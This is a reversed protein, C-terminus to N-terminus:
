DTTVIAPDPIPLVTVDLNRDIEHFAVDTTIRELDFGETQVNAGIVSRVIEGDSLDMTGGAVQVGCLASDVIRFRRLEIHASLYAGAGIGGGAGACTTAACGRELSRVVLLDSAALETSEEFAAISAEHADETLAREITLRSGGNATIAHGGRGNEAGLTRRITVDTAHVVAGNGTMLSTERQDELLLRAFTGSGGEIEIGRGGFGDPRPLTGRITVDALNATAQEVFIGVEHCREGAFRELTATAGVRIEVCRGFRGDPMALADVVTVDRLTATVEDRITIATGLSGSVRMRDVTATGGAQVTIAAGNPARITVDSATLSSTGTESSVLVGTGGNEGALVHSFAVTAREQLSLGRGGNERLSVHEFSADADAIVAGSGRNEDLRTRTFRGIGGATIQAGDERNDRVVSDELAITSGTQTAYVGLTGNNEVVVRRGTLTAGGAVSVGDGVGDVLLTDRVAVDTLDLVSRDLGVIGTDRCGEVVARELTIGGRVEANVGRGASGDVIDLRVDRIAIRRGTVRGGDAAFIGVARTGEVLVDEVTLDAAGEVWIGPREGSITVQAISTDPSGTTIVGAFPAGLSAVIRTEEVCAGVIRVGAPLVVPEDYTGRALAITTGAAAAAIAARLGAFPRAITGDGGPDAGSRVYLVGSAPLDVAYDGSPCAPADVFAAKDHACDVRPPPECRDDLATWGTPCAGFDVPEPSAPSAPPEPAAISRGGDSEVGADDSALPREDCAICALFLGACVTGLRV